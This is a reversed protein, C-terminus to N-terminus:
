HAVVLKLSAATGNSVKVSVVYVGDSYSATSVVHQSETETDVLKQYVSRGNLDTIAVTALQGNASRLDIIVSNQAPNPYLKFARTEPESFLDFMPIVLGDGAIRAGPAACTVAQITWQQTTTGNTTFQVIEGNETQNGNKLAMAKGSHRATLVYYGTADRTIKWQQNQGTHSTWQILNVLDDTSAGYVDLSKTSNANLLRYFGETNVQLKWQQSARSAYTQQRIQTGEATSGNLVGM